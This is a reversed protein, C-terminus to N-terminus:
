GSSNESATARVDERVVRAPVGVALGRAPVGRNVLGHAGIV